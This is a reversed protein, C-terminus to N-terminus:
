TKGFPTAFRKGSCQKAVFSNNFGTTTGGGVLLLYNNTILILQFFDM